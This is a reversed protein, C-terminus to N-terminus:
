FAVADFCVNRGTISVTVTHDANSADGGNSIPVEFHQWGRQGTVLEVPPAERGDVNFTIRATDGGLVGLGGRIGHGLAVQPFVFTTQPAGQPTRICRRPLYDFEHWEVKPSSPEVQAEQAHARFDYTTARGPRPEYLALTLPGFRRKPGIAVLKQDLEKLSDAADSRPLDPQAVVWLRRYREVDPESALSPYGIFPIGHIYTRARQAWFPLVTFADGPTGEPLMAAFLANYDGDSPLEGPLRVWFVLAFLLSALFVAAELVPLARSIEPLSTEQRAAAEAAVTPGPVESTM